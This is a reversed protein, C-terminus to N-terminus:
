THVYKHLARQRELEDHPYPPVLYRRAQFDREEECERVAPLTINLPMTAGMEQQGGSGDGRAAGQVAGVSSFKGSGTSDLSRTAQVREWQRQDGSETKPPLPASSQRSFASYHLPTNPVSQSSARIKACASSSTDSLWSPMSISTNGNIGGSANNSQAISSITTISDGLADAGGELTSSKPPIEAPASGSSEFFPGHHESTRRVALGFYDIPSQGMSEDGEDGIWIPATYFSPTAASNSVGTFDLTLRDRELEESFEVADFFQENFHEGPQETGSSDSKDTHTDIPPDSTGSDLLDTNLASFEERLPDECESALDEWIRRPYIGPTSKGSRRLPGRIPNTRHETNGLRSRSGEESSGERPVSLTVGHIPDTLERDPSPLALPALSAHESAAWRMTAATTTVDTTVDPTPPKGQFFLSLGSQVSPAGIHPLLSTPSLLAAIDGHLAPPPIPLRPLASPFSAAGTNARLPSPSTTQITQHPSPAPRSPALSQKSSHTSSPDSSGSSAETSTSVHAWSSSDSAQTSDTSVKSSLSDAQPSNAPASSESSYSSLARQASLGQARNEAQPHRIGLDVSFASDALRTSHPSPVTASQPRAPTRHSNWKGAAYGVMFTPWDYRNPSQHQFSASRSSISSASDPLASM